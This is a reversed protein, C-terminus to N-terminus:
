TGTGQSNAWGSSFPEATLGGGRYVVDGEARESLSGWQREGLTRALVSVVRKAWCSGTIATLGSFWRLTTAPDFSSRRAGPGPVAVLSTHISVEVSPPRVQGTCVRIGM